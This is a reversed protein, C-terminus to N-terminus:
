ISGMEFENHICNLRSIPFLQIAFHCNSCFLLQCCKEFNYKPNKCVAFIDINWTLEREQLIFTLNFQFDESFFQVIWLSYLALLASLLFLPASFDKDNQSLAVQQFLDWNSLIQNIAFLLLHSDQCLIRINDRSGLTSCTQQLAQGSYQHLRM